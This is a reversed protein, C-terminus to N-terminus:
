RGHRAGHAGTLAGGDGSPRRTSWFKLPEGTAEAALGRRDGRPDRRAGACERRVFGEGARDCTTSRLWTWCLSSTPWEKRKAATEVRRPQGLLRVCDVARVTEVEVLRSSVVCDGTTLPMRAGPERVATRLVASADVYKVRTRASPASRPRSTWPRHRLKSIRLSALKAHGPRLRGQGALRDRGRRADPRPASWDARDARRSGPRRDAQGARRWGSTASGFHNKLETVNIAKM